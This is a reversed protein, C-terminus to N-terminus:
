TTEKIHKELTDLLWVADSKVVYVSGVMWCLGDLGAQKTYEWDRVMFFTMAADTPDIHGRLRKIEELYKQKNEEDTMENELEAMIEHHRAARNMEKAVPVTQAM